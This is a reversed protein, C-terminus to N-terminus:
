SLLVKENMGLYGECIFKKISNYFGLKRFIVQDLTKLIGYCPLSLIKQQTIFKYNRDGGEPACELNNKKTIMMM